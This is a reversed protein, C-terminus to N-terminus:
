WLFVISLLLSCMFLFLTVWSLIQSSRLTEGIGFFDALLHKIGALLHYLFASVMLIMFVKLFPTELQVLLSQFSSKSSLSRDLIWVFSLFGFFIAVGCIRHLISVVGSIPLHMTTLDLNVPRTDKEIM